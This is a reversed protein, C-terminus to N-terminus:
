PASTRVRSMSPAQTCADCYRLAWRKRVTLADLDKGAAKLAALIREGLDIVTYHDAVNSDTDTM